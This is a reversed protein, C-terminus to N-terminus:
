ASRSASASRCSRPRASALRRSRRSSALLRRAETNAQLYKSVRRGFFLRSAVENRPRGDEVQFHCLGLVGFAREEVRRANGWRAPTGTRTPM